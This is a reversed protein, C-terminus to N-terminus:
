EICTCVCMSQTYGLKLASVNRTGRLDGTSLAESHRSDDADGCSTVAKGSSESVNFFPKTEVMCKLSILMNESARIWM